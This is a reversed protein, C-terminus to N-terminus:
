KDEWWVGPMCDPVEVRRGRCGDDTEKVEMEERQEIACVRVRAGYRERWGDRRVERKTQIWVWVWVWREGMKMNWARGEVAWM